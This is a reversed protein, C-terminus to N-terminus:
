VLAYIVCNQDVRVAAAMRVGGRGGCWKTAAAAAARVPLECRRHAHM